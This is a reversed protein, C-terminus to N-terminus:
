MNFWKVAAYKVTSYLMGLLGMRRNVRFDNRASSLRFKRPMKSRDKMWGRCHYAVQDPVFMLNWGKERMRQSLDIDEKYMYFTNDFVEQGRLLIEDLAKKRCFMLAGCIAPVHETQGYKKKSCPQGQDRDYWRGYWTRFIGTSDYFGTPQDRTMDYGLLMPTFIGVRSNESREMFESARELFDSEVFADPNIFVVYDSYFNVYQMGVNNGRCFGIDDGELIVGMSPEDQYQELYATDKSGSDVIIIQDFPQTQERLCKIAKHIVAESNHTVLIAACTPKM